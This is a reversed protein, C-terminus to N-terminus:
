QKMKALNAQWKETQFKLLQEHGLTNANKAAAALIEAVEEDSKAYLAQARTEEAIENISQQIRGEDSDPLPNINEFETGNLQTKWTIEYQWHTDWRRDEMPLSATFKAKATDLFNSNGNWQFNGTDGDVKAVGEADSVYDGTFQPMGEGDFGDWYKGEPGFILSSQGEPGTLWDLFAFVKEPNKAATTIVSVNWGMMSFDGPYINDKNLGEKAIPWIYFYGSNPDEALMNYHGQASLETPSASAYVAVKGSTVKATVMDLDQTLADQTILKERFLKSAYQMTELYEKSEFISTLTDGEQVAHRRIDGPSHGEKFASYLVSVGQNDVHTEFPTVDPFKEKVLKLYAYLDDTTEIKPSGLEEYIGKHVVYGANGFPKSNYWNPFQYLKGDESRLMNLGEEGFWDRLNTYKDLYDDFPVLVEGQRLREVDAGKDLWIFDPLGNGAIMTSLRQAANGGGDIATVNVKKNEKIWATSIDEGWPPMTYWDYNGFMTIDLREDGLVFPNSAATTDDTNPTEKEPEKENGADSACGAVVGLVLLLSAFLMWFKNTM